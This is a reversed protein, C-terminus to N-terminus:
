HRRARPGPTALGDGLRGRTYAYWGLASGLPSSRGADAAATAHALAKRLNGQEFRVSDVWAAEATGGIATGVVVRALAGIVM